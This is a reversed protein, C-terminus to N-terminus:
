ALAVSAEVFAAAIAPLNCALATASLTLIVDIRNGANRNLIYPHVRECGWREGIKAAWQLPYRACGCLSMVDSVFEATGVGARAAFGADLECVEAFHHEAADFLTALEVRRAPTIALWDDSATLHVDRTHASTATIELFMTAICAKTTDDFVCVQLDRRQANPDYELAAYMEAVFSTRPSEPDENLEAVAVAVGVSQLALVCAAQDADSLFRLLTQRIGQTRLAESVQAFPPPGAAM